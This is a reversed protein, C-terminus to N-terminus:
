FTRDSIENPPINPCSFDAMQGPPALHHYGPLKNGPIRELVIRGTLSPTILDPLVNKRCRATFVDLVPARVESRSPDKELRM